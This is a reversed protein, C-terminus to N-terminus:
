RTAETERGGNLGERRIRLLRGLRVTPVDGRKAMAYALGRGCGVWAAYEEVRLLEPLQDFPTFRTIKM